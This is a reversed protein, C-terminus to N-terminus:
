FCTDVDSKLSWGCSNPKHEVKKLLYFTYSALGPFYKACYKVIPYPLPYLTAAGMSQLKFNTNQKIFKLFEKHTFSRIHPGNIVSCSPQRGFLIFFRNHLAAINPIGIILHGGIRLVRDMESLPLFINKLHEIVQNCVIVEIEQDQFPFTDHELDIGLVKFHKKALKVFKPKLEIGYVREPPVSLMRAYQITKTGEACGVDLLSNSKPVNKLMNLVAEYTRAGEYRAQVCFRYFQRFFSLM